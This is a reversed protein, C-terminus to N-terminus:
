ANRGIGLRDYWCFSLFAAVAAAAAAVVVVVVYFMFGIFYECLLRVDYKTHDFLYRSIIPLPLVWWYIWLTRPKSSHLTNNTVLIGRNFLPENADQPPSLAEVKLLKLRSILLRNYPANRSHPMYCM